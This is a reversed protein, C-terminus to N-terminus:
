FETQIMGVAAATVLLMVPWTARVKGIALVIGAAFLSVGGSAHGLLLLACLLLLPVQFGVLVVALGVVPAWVMPEQITGWLKAAIISFGAARPVAYEKKQAAPNEPRSHQLVPDLTLFLITAPVVTLNIELGAMAIPITSSQGFLEGLIAPGMFPVALASATLAALASTSPRAGFIFRSALFVLGFVGVITICLAILMPIDQTLEARPTSATGVFLM